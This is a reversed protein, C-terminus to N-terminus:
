LSSGKLVHEFIRAHKLASERWTFSQARRIGKERLDDRLGKVSILKRMADSIEEVSRPNVLLAADGAVEPCGAVNSTIVPCGCAMAELVPMGFTERLSPFMFFLAKQYMLRLQEHDMSERIVDIDAGVRRDPYGPAVIVLRPRDDMRLSRYADIMRDINKLRQYSSVHLIFGGGEQPVVSPYFMGSDVGHHVTFVMDEPYGLYKVFETRAYESVAIVGALSNRLRKWGNVTWHRSRIGSLLTRLGTGFCETLPLALNAAGHFTAILPRGVGIFCAPPAGRGCRPDWLLDIDGPLRETDSFPEVEVGLGNLERVVNDIYNRLSHALGAPYFLGAKM